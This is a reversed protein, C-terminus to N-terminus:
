LINLKGTLNKYETLDLKLSGILLDTKLRIPVKCQDDSIWITMDEEEKFVRGEQLLPRFKLCAVKGLDTKITDRGLFKIRMPYNEMDFFTEITYIQGAKSKQLDLTRCYYFASLLDQVNPVTKYVKGDVKATTDNQNFYVDRSLKFGGENVRRIFLWPVLADQDVYSEYRDDVNFFWSFAGLSRGTGVFHYAARNSVKSNTQQVKLKAEAANVFGYSATFSLEEGVKFADQKVSRLSSNQASLVITSALSLGLILNKM